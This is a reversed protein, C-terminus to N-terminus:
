YNQHALKINKIWLKVPTSQKQMHGFNRHMGGQSYGGSHEPDRRPRDGGMRGSLGTGSEIDNRHQDDGMGQHTVSEIGISIAKNEEAPLKIHLEKLPIKLSYLLIGSSDIRIKGEVSDPNDSSVTFQSDKGDFGLLEIDQLKNIFRNKGEGQERNDPQRINEQELEYGTRENFGVPFKIGTTKNEKETPDIWVYLGSRLIKRQETEEPIRLNLYLNKQDNSIFYMLKSQPDYMYKDMLVNDDMSEMQKTHLSSILYHPQACNTM